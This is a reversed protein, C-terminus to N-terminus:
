LCFPGEEDVDQLGNSKMVEYADDTRRGAILISMLAVGVFFGIFGGLFFALVKM